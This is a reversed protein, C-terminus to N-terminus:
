FGFGITGTLSNLNFSNQGALEATANRFGVEGYISNKGGFSGRSSQMFELGVGGGYGFGFEQEKPDIGTVTTPISRLNLYNYNVLGIGWLYINLGKERRAVPYLFLGVSPEISFYEYKSVYDVSNKTFTQTGGAFVARARFMYGIYLGGSDTSLEIGYASDGQSFSIKNPGTFTSATLGFRSTKVPARSLSAAQAVNFLLFFLGWCKM